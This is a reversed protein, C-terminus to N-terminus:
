LKLKAFVQNQKSLLGIFIVFLFSSFSISIWVDLSLRHYIQDVTFKLYILGALMLISLFFLTSPLQSPNVKRTDYHDLTQIFTIFLSGLLVLSLLQILVVVLMINNMMQDNNFVYPSLWHDYSNVEQLLHSRSESFDFQSSLLTQLETVDIFIDNLQNTQYYQALSPLYKLIPEQDKITQVSFLQDVHYGTDLRVDLLTNLSFVLVIFVLVKKIVWVRNFPQDSRAWTYILSLVYGWFPLFFISTSYNFLEYGSITGFIRLILMVVFSIITLNRLSKQLDIEQTKTFAKLVQYSLILLYFVYFLMLAASVVWLIMQLLHEQRYNQSSYIIFPNLQNMSREIISRTGFDISEYTQYNMSLFGLTMNYVSAAVRDVEVKVSSSSGQEFLYPISSVLDTMNFKIEIQSPYEPVLHTLPVRGITSFSALFLIIFFALHVLLYGDKHNLTRLFPRIRDRNLRDYKVVQQKGCHNCYVSEEPIEKYCHICRM